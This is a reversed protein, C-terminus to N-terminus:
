ISINKLISISFCILIRGMGYKVFARENQLSLWYKVFEDVVKVMEESFFM